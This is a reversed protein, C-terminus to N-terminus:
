CQMFIFRAMKVLVVREINWHDDLKPRSMCSGSPQGILRSQSRWGTPLCLRGPRGQEHVGAGLNKQIRGAGPTETRLIIVPSRGIVRKNSAHTCRNSPFRRSSDDSLKAPRAHGTFYWHTGCDMHQLLRTKKLVMWREPDIDRENDYERSNPSFKTTLTQCM